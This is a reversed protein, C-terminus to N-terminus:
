ELQEAGVAEGGDAPREHIEVLEGEDISEIFGLGTEVPLGPPVM